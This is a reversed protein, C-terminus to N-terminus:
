IDLNVHNKNPLQLAANTKQVKEQKAIRIDAYVFLNKPSRM